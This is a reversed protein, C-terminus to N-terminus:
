QSNEEDDAVECLQAICTHGAAVSDKRKERETCESRKKCSGVILIQVFTQVSISVAHQDDVAGRADAGALAALRAVDRGCKGGDIGNRVSRVVVLAM